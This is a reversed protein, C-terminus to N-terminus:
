LKYNYKTLIDEIAESMVSKITRKKDHALLKIAEIDKERLIYTARREVETSAEKVKDEIEEREKRAVKYKLGKLQKLLDDEQKM